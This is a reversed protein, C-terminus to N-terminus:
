PRNDAVLATKRDSKPLPINMLALTLIEGIEKNTFLHTLPRQDCLERTTMDEGGYRQVTELWNEITTDRTSVFHTFDLNTSKTCALM